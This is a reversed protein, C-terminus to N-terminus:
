PLMIPSTVKERMPPSKSWQFMFHLKVRSPGQQSAFPLTNAFLLTRINKDISVLYVAPLSSLVKGVENVHIIIFEM